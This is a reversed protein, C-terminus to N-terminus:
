NINIPEEKLHEFKNVTKRSKYIFVMSLVLALGFLVTTFFLIVELFKTSKSVTNPNTKADDLRFLFLGEEMDSAYSYREQREDFAYVGWVGGYGAGTSTDYFDLLNPFAPNSVNYVAVGQQYYSVYLFDDKVFVNHAMSNGFQNISLDGLFKPTINWLVNGKEDKWLKWVTIPLNNSEHTVYFVSCSDDVWVNHGLEFHAKFKQLVRPQSPDTVNVIWIFNDYIAAGFLIHDNGCKTVSLDHIYQETFNGILKPNRENAGSIDYMFIGGNATSHVQTSNGGQRSSMGCVYLYPRDTEVFVNHSFLFDNTYYQILKPHFPDDMSVIVLGEPRQFFPSERANKVSLLVKVEKGENYYRRLTDGDSKGVMVGALLVGTSEGAMGPYIFSDEFNEIVVAIAGAEQAKLIKQQFSCTGRPILAINGKIKDSNEIYNCGKDDWNSIPVLLGEIDGTDSLQKTIAGQTMVMQTEVPSKVQLFTECKEGVMCNCSQTFETIGYITKKWVKMDRWVNLCGPIFHVAKPSSPDTVDVFDIGNSM